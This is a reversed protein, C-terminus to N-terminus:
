SIPQARVPENRANQFTDTFSFSDVIVGEANSFADATLVNMGWAALVGTMQSFLLPRDRTILTLQSMGPAYNFQLQVGSQDPQGLKTALELHQRIQEATRTQLYRRPFGRLFRAASGDSQAFPAQVREIVDRLLPDSATGVRKKM